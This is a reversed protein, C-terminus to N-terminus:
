PRGDSKHNTSKGGDRAHPNAHLGRDISVHAGGALAPQVDSAAEVPRKLPAGQHTKRQSANAARQGGRPPQQRAGTNARQAHGRGGRRQRHRRRAPAGPTAVAVGARGAGALGPKAHGAGAGIERQSAALAQVNSKAVAEERVGLLQAPGGSSYAGGAAPRWDRGPGTAPLRSRRSTSTSRRRPRPIRRRLPPLGRGPATAPGPPPSPALLGRATAPGRRRLGDIRLVRAWSRPRLSPPLPGFGRPCCHGERQPRGGALAM